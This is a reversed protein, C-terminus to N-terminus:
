AAQAAAFDPPPRDWVRRRTETPPCGHLAAYAAAFRGLHWFGFGLAIDTILRRDGEALIAGHAARLRRERECTRLTKGLCDLFARQLTRETVGLATCVSLVSVLEFPQADLLDLAARVLKRKDVPARRRPEDATATGLVSALVARAEEAAVTMAARYTVGRQAGREALTTARLIAEQLRFEDAAPLAPRHQGHRTLSRIAKANPGENLRRVADGRLGIRVCHYEGPEKARLETGPGLVLLKPTPQRVGRVELGDGWLFTAHIADDRVAGDVEVGGADWIRVLRVGEHDVCAIRAVHEGRDIPRYHFSFDPDQDHNRRALTGYRKAYWEFGPEADRTM